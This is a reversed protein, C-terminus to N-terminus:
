KAETPILDRLIKIHYAEYEKADIPIEIKTKVKNESFKLDQVTTYEFGNNGKFIQFLEAQKIVENGEIGTFEMEFNIRDVRKAFQRPYIIINEYVSPRTKEEYQFKFSIPFSAYKTNYPQLFWEYCVVSSDVRTANRHEPHPVGEYGERDGSRQEIKPNGRSYMNGRYFVYKKPLNKNEAQLEYAITDSYTIFEDKTLKSTDIDSFDSTYKVSLERVHLNNTDKNKHLALCIKPLLNFNHKPNDTLFETFEAFELREKYKKNAYLAVAIFLVLFLSLVIFVTNIFIAIIAFISAIGGLIVCFFEVREKLKNM